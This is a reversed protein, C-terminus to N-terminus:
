SFKAGASPNKARIKELVERLDAPLAAEVTVREAPKAPNPFVLKAAHLALRACIGARRSGYLADGAIPCGIHALHVRIQHMRGQRPTVELLSLAASEKGSFREVVRYETQAARGAPHVASTKPPPLPPAEVGPNQQGYYRLARALREPKGTQNELIPADIVGRQEAPVGECLALYTKEVTGWARELARAADRTRALLLVGSADKDLRHVPTLGALGHQERLERLVSSGPGPAEHVSLGPPKNAAVVAEDSYLIEIM